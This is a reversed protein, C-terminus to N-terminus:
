NKNGEDYSEKTRVISEDIYRCQTYIDKPIYFTPGGSNNVILVIMAYEQNPGIYYAIDFIASTEYLSKYGQTDTRPVTTDIEKLDEVTEILFINGGLLFEFTDNERDYDNFEEQKYLELVNDVIVKDAVERLEKLNTGLEKM